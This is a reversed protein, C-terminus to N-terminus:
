AAEATALPTEPDFRESVEEAVVDHWKRTLRLLRCVLILASVLDDSSGPRASFSRGNRVFRNIEALLPGSRIRMRRSEILSKLYLAAALKAGQTTGLGRQRRKRAVKAGPNRRPENVLIGSFADVGNEEVIANVAEGVGNREFTWYIDADGIGAEWAAADITELIHQLIAVQDRIPVTNSRWEAVQRLGPLTFVEIAAHDSGTGTSPDFGVYFIGDPDIDEFWAVGLEDIRKPQQPEIVRLVLPDVLTEEQTVFECEYERRFRREGIKAKQARAWNEDREPHRHWPVMIAYFGNVGTGDERPRGTEDWINTADHWIRAFQDDDFNPTSTIICSGGTSLTPQISTWFETAITPRVFAFEDLYLLSVAYGRGTDESTACSIIRSGNDFEISGKNYTPAGCKLWNPLMEYAYRVRQMVELAQREKNAAILIMQDPRFMARWLMYAAATSTKGMQRATMAVVWQYREFARIMDIQYDYLRFPVAGKVPHQVKVWHSVFYVPDLTCRRLEEIHRDGLRERTGPKKVTTATAGTM